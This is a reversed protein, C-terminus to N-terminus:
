TNSKNVNRDCEKKSEDVSHKNHQGSEHQSDQEQRQTQNM